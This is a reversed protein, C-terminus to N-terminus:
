RINILDANLDNTVFGFERFVRVLKHANDNSASMFFNIDGTYRFKNKLDSKM